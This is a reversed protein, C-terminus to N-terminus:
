HLFCRIIIVQNKNHETNFMKKEFLPFYWNDHYMRSLTLPKILVFYKDPFTKNLFFLFSRKM